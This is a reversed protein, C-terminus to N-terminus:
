HEKENQGKHEYINVVEYGNQRAFKWGFRYFFEDFFLLLAEDPVFQDCHEVNVKSEM